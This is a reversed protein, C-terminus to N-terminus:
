WRGGGGGGSGRGGGGGGGGRRQILPTTVANIERDRGDVMPVIVHFSGVSGVFTGVMVMAKTAAVAMAIAMAVVAMTM